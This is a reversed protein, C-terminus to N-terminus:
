PSEEASQSDAKPLAQEYFSVLIIANLFPQSFRERVLKLEKVTSSGLASLLDALPTLTGPMPVYQSLEIASRKAASTLVLNTQDHRQALYNRVSRVLEHSRILDFQEAALHMRVSEVLDDQQTKSTVSDIMAQVDSRRLGRTTLLEAFATPQGEKNSRRQVESRIGRYFPVPPISGDHHGKLFECVAGQAHTEHDTASLATTELFMMSMGAPPSQLKHQDVIKKEIEAKETPEIDSICFRERDVSPPHAAMKLKFRACSIFNLSRVHDPFNLYHDYLKALFSPLLGTKGKEPVTLAHATWNTGVKTKVQYFDAATPSAADNLVVVDDHFDFLVCYDDPRSHLRLLLCLAWSYQFAFRNGSRPGSSERPPRSVLLESFSQGGPPIPLSM